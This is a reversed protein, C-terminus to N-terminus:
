PKLVGDVTDVVGDVVQGTPEGVVPLQDTVERLTDGVQRIPSPTEAVPPPTTPPVVTAAPPPTAQPQTTPPTGGGPDFGAGPAPTDTGTTGTGTPDTTVTTSGNPAVTTAAADRRVQALLRGTDRADGPRTLPAAAPLRPGDFAQGLAGLADLGGGGLGVALAAGVIAVPAVVAGLAAGFARRRWARLLQM